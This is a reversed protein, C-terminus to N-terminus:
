NRINKKFADSLTAPQQGAAPLVVLTSVAGLQLLKEAPRTQDARDADQLAFLQQVCSSCCAAKSGHQWAALPRRCRVQLQLEALVAGCNLLNSVLCLGRFM